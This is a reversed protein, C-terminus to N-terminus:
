AFACNFELNQEEIITRPEEKLNTVEGNKLEWTTVFGFPETGWTFYFKNKM